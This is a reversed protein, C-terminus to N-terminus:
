FRCSLTAFREPAAELARSEAELARSKAELARSEARSATELARVKTAARVATVAEELLQPALNGGRIGLELAGNATTRM